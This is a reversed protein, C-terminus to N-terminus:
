WGGYLPPLRKGCYPCRDAHDSEPPRWGAERLMRGTRYARQKCANSCYVERGTPWFDGRCGPCLTPAGLARVVAWLGKGRGRRQILWLVQNTFDHQRTFYELGLDWSHDPPGPGEEDPDLGEVIRRLEELGEADRSVLKV